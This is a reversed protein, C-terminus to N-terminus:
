RSKETEKVDQSYEATTYNEDPVWRSLEDLALYGAGILALTIMVYLIWEEIKDKM